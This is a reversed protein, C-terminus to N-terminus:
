KQANEGEEKKMLRQNVRTLVGMFAHFERKSMLARGLVHRLMTETRSFKHKPYNINRLLELFESVFMEKEERSAEEREVGVKEYKTIEYMIVAAAHSINMVPSKDTTPIKILIDCKRLEDLLLGYDERGFLIGIKGNIEKIKRKLFEPSEVHRLDKKINKTSIGTTGVLYHIDSTANEFSRFFEAKKLIYKGHMARKLSEDDIKPGNVIRLNEFGFNDMARAILGINGSYKPEILIVFVKKLDEQLRIRGGRGSWIDRTGM